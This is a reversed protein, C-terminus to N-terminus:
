TGNRSFGGDTRRRYDTRCYSQHPAFLATTQVNTNPTLACFWRVMGNTTEQEYQTAVANATQTSLSM